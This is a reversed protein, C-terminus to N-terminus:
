SQHSDGLTHLEGTVLPRLQEAIQDMEDPSVWQHAPQALYAFVAPGHRDPPLDEMRPVVHVHLHQFSETEAFLALYTKHVGLGRQLARSLAVLLPGLTAAEHDTLEAM